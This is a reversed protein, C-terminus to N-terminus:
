REKTGTAATEVKRSACSPKYASGLSSPPRAFKPVRSVVLVFLAADFSGVRRSNM